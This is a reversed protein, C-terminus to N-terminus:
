EHEWCGKFFVPNRERLADLYTQKDRMVKTALMGEGKRKRYYIMSDFKRPSWGAAWLRAHFDWSEFGKITPDYGGVYQWADRYFITAPHMPQMARMTTMNVKIRKRRNIDGFLYVDSFMWDFKGMRPVANKIFNDRIRDDADLSIIHGVTAARIGSNRAAPLGMNHEHRILWVPKEAYPRLARIIDGPSGDDVVIVQDANAALASEIAEPLFDEHGYCPIVVATGSHLTERWWLRPVYACRLPNEFLAKRFADWPYLKAQQAKWAELFRGVKRKQAFIMGTYFRPESLHDRYPVVMRYGSDLYRYGMRYHAEEPVKAEPGLFLFQNPMADLHEMILDPYVLPMHYREQDIMVIQADPDYQRIGDYQWPASVIAGNKM